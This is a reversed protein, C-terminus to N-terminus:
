IVINGKKLTETPMFWKIGTEKSLAECKEAIKAWGIGKGM